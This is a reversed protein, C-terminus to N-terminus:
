YCEWYRGCYRREIANDINDRTADEIAYDIANDDDNEIANEVAYDIADKM